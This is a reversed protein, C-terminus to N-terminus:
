WQYISVTQEVEQQFHSDPLNMACCKWPSSHSQSTQHKRSGQLMTPHHKCMM